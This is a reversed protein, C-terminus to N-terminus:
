QDQEKWGFASDTLQTDPGSCAQSGQRKFAPSVPALEGDAGARFLCLVHNLAAPWSSKMWARTWRWLEALAAGATHGGNRGLWLNENGKQQPFRQRGPGQERACEREGDKPANAM